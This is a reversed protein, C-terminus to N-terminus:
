TTRRCFVQVVEGEALADTFTVASGTMTYDNGMGVLLLLGSRFIQHRGPAFDADAIALTWVTEAGEAELTEHHEWPGEANVFSAIAAAIAASKTTAATPDSSTAGVVALLAAALNETNTPM